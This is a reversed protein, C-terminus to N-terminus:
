VVRTGLPELLRGYLEKLREGAERWDFEKEFRRRGEEGMSRGRDPRGLLEGIARRLADVDKYDVFPVGSASTRVIKGKSPGFRSFQSM